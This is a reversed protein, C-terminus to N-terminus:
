GPLFCHHGVKEKEYNLYEWLGGLRYADKQYKKSIFMLAYFPHNEVDILFPQLSDSNKVPSISFQDSVKYFVTDKQEEAIKPGYYNLRYSNITSTELIIWLFSPLGIILLLLWKKNKM